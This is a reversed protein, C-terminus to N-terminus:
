LGRSFASYPPANAPRTSIEHPGQIGSWYALDNVGASPGNRSGSLACSLMRFAVGCPRPHTHHVRERLDRVNRRWTGLKM